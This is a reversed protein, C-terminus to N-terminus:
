SIWLHLLCLWRVQACPWIVFNEGEKQQCCSATQRRRAIKEEGEQRTQIKQLPPTLPALSCRHPAASKHAAAAAASVALPSAVKRSPPAGFQVSSAKRLGDPPPLKPPVAIRLATLTREIHAAANGDGAPVSPPPLPVGVSDDSTAEDDEDEDDEDDDEDDDANDNNDDDEELEEEEQDVAAEAAALEAEAAAEM